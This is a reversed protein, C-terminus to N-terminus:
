NRGGRGEPLAYGNAKLMARAPPSQMFDFFAIALPGADKILIMHQRLPAHLSPPVQASIIANRLRPAFTLSHAVLGAQAAGSAVFQAAQAVNEAHVLRGQLPTWLRSAQLAQQAAAGYPAHKPHAIAFRQLTGHDIAPRLDALTKLGTLPSAKPAILALRGRAYEVPRDKALGHKTILTIAAQNASLFLRYPAGQVILRALNGSSGYSIRLTGGTKRKFDDVIAGLCYRLNAAAAIVPTRTGAAWARNQPLANIALAGLFTRRSLRM